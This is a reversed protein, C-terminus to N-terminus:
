LLDLGSEITANFGGLSKKAEPSVRIRTNVRKSNHEIYLFPAAAKIRQNIENWAKHDSLQDFLVSTGDENTINSPFSIEIGFAYQPYQSVLWGKSVQSERFPVASFVSLEVCPEKFDPVLLGNGKKAYICNEPHATVGTNFGLISHDEEWVCRKGSALLDYLEKYRQLVENTDSVTYGQKVGTGTVVFSFGVFASSFEKPTILFWNKKRTNIWYM